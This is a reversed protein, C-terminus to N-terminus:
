PAVQAASWADVFASIRAIADSRVPALSHHVGPYTVLEANPLQRVADRLLDLRAFPDADGSLLLVPCRVRPWHETRAQWTEWRGPAHLPYCLLVLGAIRDDEAALRSAVRGGFSQGGIIVAGGVGDVAARFATVGRAPDKTGLAVGGARFGAQSLAILYPEIARVDGSAGPALLVTAADASM